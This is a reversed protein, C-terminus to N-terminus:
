DNKQMESENGHNIIQELLSVVKIALPFKEFEIGLNGRVPDDM